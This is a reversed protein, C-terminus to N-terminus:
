WCLRVLCANKDIFCPILLLEFVISSLNFICHMFRVHQSLDTTGKFKGDESLNLDVAIRALRAREACTTM